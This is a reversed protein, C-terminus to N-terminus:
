DQSSLKAECWYDVGNPCESLFLAVGLDIFKKLASLRGLFHFHILHMNQPHPPIAVRRYPSKVPM